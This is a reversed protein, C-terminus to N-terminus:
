ADDDRQVAGGLGDDKRSCSAPGVEGRKEGEKGRGTGEGGTANLKGSDVGLGRGDERDAKATPISWANSVWVPEFRPRIRICRTFISSGMFFNINRTREISWGAILGEAEMGPQCRLCLGPKSIRMACHLPLTAHCPTTHRPTAYRPTAHCPMAHCPTAHRPRSSKM